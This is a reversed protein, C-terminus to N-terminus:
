QAAKVMAQEWQPRRVSMLVKQFAELKTQVM